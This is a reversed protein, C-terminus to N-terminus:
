LLLLYAAALDDQRIAEMRSKEMEYAIHAEHAAQDQLMRELLALYVRIFQDEVGQLEKRIVSERASQTPKEAAKAIVQQAVDPLEKIRDEAYKPREPWWDVKATTGGAPRETYARMQFANNQFADNQFAGFFMM